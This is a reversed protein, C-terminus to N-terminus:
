PEVLLAVDCSLSPLLLRKNIHMEKRFKSFFVTTNTESTAKQSHGVSSFM